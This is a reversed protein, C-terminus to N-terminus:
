FNRCKLVKRRFQLFPPSLSHSIIFAIGTFDSLGAASIGEKSLVALLVTKMKGAKEPSKKM